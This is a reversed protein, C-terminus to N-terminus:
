LPVDTSNAGGEGPGWGLTVYNKNVEPTVGGRERKRERERERERFMAHNSIKIKLLKGCELTSNKSSPRKGPNSRLM